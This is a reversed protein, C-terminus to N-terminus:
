GSKKKLFHFRAVIVTQNSNDQFRLGFYATEALNLYSFVADLLDQGTTKDRVEQILEQKDLLLIKVHFSKSAASSSSPRLFRGLASDPGCGCCGM